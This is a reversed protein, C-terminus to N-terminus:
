SSKKVYIRDIESPDIEISRQPSPAKRKKRKPSPPQKKIEQESPQPKTFFEKILTQLSKVGLVLIVSLIFLFVTSFFGALFSSLLITM